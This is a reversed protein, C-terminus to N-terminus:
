GKSNVYDIKKSLQETNLENLYDKWFQSLEDLEAKCELLSLEPWVPLKSKEGKLRSIWLWETGVIHAMLKLSKLPPSAIAELSALTERNAWDDYTFLKKLHEIM